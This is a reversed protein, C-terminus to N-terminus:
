IVTRTSIANTKPDLKVATNPQGTVSLAREWTRGMPDMMRPSNKVLACIPIYV